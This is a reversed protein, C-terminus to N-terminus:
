KDYERARSGLTFQFSISSWAKVFERLGGQEKSSFPKDRKEFKNFKKKNFHLQSITDHWDRSPEDRM